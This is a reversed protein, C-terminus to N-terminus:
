FKEEIGFYNNIKIRDTLFYKDRHNFLSVKNDKINFLWTLWRMYSNASNTIRNLQNLNSKITINKPKTTIYETM